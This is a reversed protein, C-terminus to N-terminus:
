FINRFNPIESEWIEDLLIKCRMIEAALEGNEGYLALSELRSVALTVQDMQTHRVIQCISLHKDLWKKTVYKSYEATNEKDGNLTMEYLTDFEKDFENKFNTLILLCSSSIIVTATLLVLAIWM